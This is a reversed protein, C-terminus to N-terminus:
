TTTTASSTWLYTTQGSRIALTAASVGVVVAWESDVVNGTSALSAQTRVSVLRGQRLNLTGYSLAMTSAASRYWGLSSESSFAFPPTTVNSQTAYFTPGQSALLPVSNLDNLIGSVSNQIFWNGSGGVYTSCSSMYPADLRNMSANAGFYVGDVCSELWGGKVSCGVGDIEFGTRATEVICNVFQWTQSYRGVRFATTGSMQARSSLFTNANCGSALTGNDDSNLYYRGVGGYCQEFQNYYPASGGNGTGYWHDSKGTTGFTRVHRWTCLAFNTFDIIPKGTTTQTDAVIFVHEFTCDFVLGEGKLATVDGVVTLRFNRFVLRTANAPFRLPATIRYEKFQGDFTANTPNNTLMEQLAATDDVSGNGVATYPSATPNIVTTNVAVINAVLPNLKSNFLSPSAPDGDQFSTVSSLTAM